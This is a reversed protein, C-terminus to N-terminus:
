SSHALVPSTSRVTSEARGTSCHTTEAEFQPQQACMALSRCALAHAAYGHRASSHAPGTNSHPSSTPPPAVNLYQGSSVGGHSTRSSSSQMGAVTNSTYGQQSTSSYNAQRYQQPPTAPQMNSGHQASSAGPGASYAPSNSPRASSSAPMNSSYPASYISRTGGSAYPQQQSMSSSSNGGQTSYHQHPQPQQQQQSRSPPAPSGSNISSSLSNNSTNRQMSPMSTNPPGTYPYVPQHSYSVPHSSGYMQHSGDNSHTLQAANGGGQKHFEDWQQMMFLQQQAEINAGSATGKAAARKGPARPKGKPGVVPSASVPAM